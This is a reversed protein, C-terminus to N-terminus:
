TYITIIRILIRFKFKFTQTKFFLVKLQVYYNKKQLPVDMKYSMFDDKPKEAYQHNLLDNSEFPIFKKPEDNYDALSKLKSRVESKKKDKKSLDLLKPIAGYM